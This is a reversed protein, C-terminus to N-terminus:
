TALTGCFALLHRYCGVTVESKCFPMRMALQRQSSARTSMSRDSTHRRLRLSGPNVPSPVAFLTCPPPDPHLTCYDYTSSSRQRHRM